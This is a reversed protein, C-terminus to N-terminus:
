PKRRGAIRGGTQIGSVEGASSDGLFRGGLIRRGSAPELVSFLWDEHLMLEQYREGNVVLTATAGDPGDVVYEMDGNSYSGFM